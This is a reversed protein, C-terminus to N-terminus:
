ATDLPDGHAHSHLTLTETPKGGYPTRRAANEMAPAEGGPRASAVLPDPAIKM